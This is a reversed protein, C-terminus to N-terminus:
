RRVKSRSRGGRPEATSLILDACAGPLQPLIVTGSLWNPLASRM